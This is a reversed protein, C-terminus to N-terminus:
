KLWTLIGEVLQSFGIDIMSLAVGIAIAVTLVMITLRTSEERTPWVVKRLESVVDTFFGVPLTRPIARTEASRRTAM